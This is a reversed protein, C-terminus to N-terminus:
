SKSSKKEQKKKKKDRYPIFIIWAAAISILPIIARTVDGLLYYAVIMGLVGFIGCLKFIAGGGLLLMFGIMVAYILIQILTQSGLFLFTNDGVADQIYPIIYMDTVYPVALIFLLTMIVGACFKLVIGM